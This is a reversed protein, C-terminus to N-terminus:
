NCRSQDISELSDRVADVMGRVAELVIQAADILLRLPETVVDVVVNTATQLDDKARDLLGSLGERVETSQATSDGVRLFEEAKVLWAQLEAILASGLRVVELSPAVTLCIEEWPILMQILIVAAGGAIAIGVVAGLGTWGLRHM